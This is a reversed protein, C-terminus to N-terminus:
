KGQLIEGEAQLWNEHEDHNGTELYIEFARQRILEELDMITTSTNNIKRVIKKSNTLKKTNTKM